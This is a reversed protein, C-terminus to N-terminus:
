ASFFIDNYHDTIEQGAYNAIFMYICIASAFMFHLIFEEMNNKCSVVQSIQLLM